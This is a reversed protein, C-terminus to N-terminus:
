SKNHNVIMNELLNVYDVFEKRGKETLSYTSRPKNNFFDKKIIIYESEELKSFQVSLNGDTAGTLEKMEKFTKEGTILSAVISIRLKSQFIDPISNVDM